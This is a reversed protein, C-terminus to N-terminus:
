TGLASRDDSMLEHRLLASLFKGSYHLAVANLFVEGGAPIALQERHLKEDVKRQIPIASDAMAYKPIVVVSPYLRLSELFVALSYTQM